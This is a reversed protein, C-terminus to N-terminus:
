AEVMWGHEPCSSSPTEISGDEETMCSCEPEVNKWGFREGPLVDDLDLVQEVPPADFRYRTRRFPAREDAQYVDVAAYREREILEEARARARSENAFSYTPGIEQVFVRWPRRRANM